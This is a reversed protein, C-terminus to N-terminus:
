VGGYGAIWRQAEDPRTIRYESEYEGGGQELM